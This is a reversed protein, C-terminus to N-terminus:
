EQLLLIPVQFGIITAEQLLLGAALNPGATEWCFMMHSKGKQVPSAAHLPVFPLECVASFDGWFSFLPNLFPDLDMQLEECQQLGSLIYLPLKM